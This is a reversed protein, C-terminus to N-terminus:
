AHSATCTVTCLVGDRRRRYPRALYMPRGYLVLTFASRVKQKQMEKEMEEDSAVGKTIARREIHGDQMSTQPLNKYLGPLSLSSNFFPMFM